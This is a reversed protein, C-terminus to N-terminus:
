RLPDFGEFWQDDDPPRRRTRERESAPAREAINHEVQAKLAPTNELEAAFEAADFDLFNAAKQASRYAGAIEDTLWQEAGEYLTGPSIHVRKLRGLLDVSVTVSGSPSVGKFESFLALEPNEKIKGLRSKMMEAVETPDPDTM